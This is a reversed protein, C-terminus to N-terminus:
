YGKEKMCNEYAPEYPASISVNNADTWNAKGAAICGNVAENLLKKQWYATVGNMVFLTIAALALAIIMIPVTKMGM